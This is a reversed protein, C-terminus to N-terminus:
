CKVYKLFSSLVSPFASEENPLSGLAPSQELGQSWPWLQVCVSLPGVWFKQDSLYFM